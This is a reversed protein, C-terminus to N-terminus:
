ARRWLGKVSMVVRIRYFAHMCNGFPVWDKFSTFQVIEYNSQYLFYTPFFIRNFVQKISFIFSCVRKFSSVFNAYTTSKTLKATLFSCSLSFFVFYQIQFWFWKRSSQWRIKTSQWHIMKFQCKCQCWFQRCRLVSNWHSSVHVQELSIHVDLLPRM